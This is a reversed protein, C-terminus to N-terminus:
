IQVMRGGHFCITLFGFKYSVCPSLTSSNGLSFTSDTLLLCHSPLCYLCITAQVALPSLLLALGM